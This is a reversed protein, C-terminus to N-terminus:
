VGRGGVKGFFFEFQLVLPDFCTSLFLVVRFHIFLSLSLSLSLSVVSHWGCPHVLTTLVIFIITPGTKPGSMWKQTNLTPQAETNGVFGWWSGGAICVFQCTLFCVNVGSDIYWITMDPIFSSELSYYQCSEGKVRLGQLKVNVTYCVM